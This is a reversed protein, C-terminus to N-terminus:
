RHKHINRSSNLTQFYWRRHVGRLQRITLFLINKKTKQSCRWKVGRDVSLFLKKWISVICFQFCCPQLCSQASKHYLRYLGTEISYTQNTYNFSVFNNRITRTNAFWKWVLLHWPRKIVYCKAERNCYLSPLTTQNLSAKEENLHCISSIACYIHWYLFLFM